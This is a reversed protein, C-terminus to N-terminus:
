YCIHVFVMCFPLIVYYHDKHKYEHCQQGHIFSFHPGLCALHKNVSTAVGLIKIDFM